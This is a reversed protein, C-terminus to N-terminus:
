SNTSKKKIAKKIGFAGAATVLITLFGGLSEILKLVFEQNAQLSEARNDHHKQYTDILDVM